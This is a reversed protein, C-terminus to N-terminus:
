ANAAKRVSASRWIQERMKTVRQGALIERVRARTAARILDAVTTGAAAAARQWEKRDAATLRLQLVDSLL